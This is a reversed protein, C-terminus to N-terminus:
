KKERLIHTRIQMASADDRAMLKMSPIITPVPSSLSLSFSLPAKLFHHNIPQSYSTPSLQMLVLIVACFYFLPHSSPLRPSCQGKM